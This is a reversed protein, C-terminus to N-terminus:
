PVECFDASSKRRIISSHNSLPGENFMSACNKARLVDQGISIEDISSISQSMDLTVVMNGTVSTEVESFVRIMIIVIMTINQTVTIVMMTM